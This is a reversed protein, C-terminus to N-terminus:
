IHVHTHPYPYLYGLLTHTNPPYMHAHSCGVWSISFLPGGDVCDSICTLVFCGYGADSGQDVVLVIRHLLMGHAALVPLLEPHNPVSSLSKKYHLAQNIM